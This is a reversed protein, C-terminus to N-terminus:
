GSCCVPVQHSTQSSILRAERDAAHATETANTGSRRVAVCIGTYLAPHEM